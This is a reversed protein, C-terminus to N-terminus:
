WSFNIDFKNIANSFPLHLHSLTSSKILPLTSPNFVKNTILGTSPLRM